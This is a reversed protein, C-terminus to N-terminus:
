SCQELIGTPTLSGHTDLVLGTIIPVPSEIFDLHKLPLVAIIPAVWSLPRLLSLLGMVGCSVLGPSYGVVLIKAECLM